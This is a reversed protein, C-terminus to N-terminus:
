GEFATFRECLDRYEAETMSPIEAKAAAIVGNYVNYRVDANWWVTAGVLVAGTTYSVIFGWLEARPQHQIVHGAARIGANFPKLVVWIMQTLWITGYLWAAAVVVLMGFIFAM